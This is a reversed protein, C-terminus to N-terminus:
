GFTVQSFSSNKDDLDKNKNSTKLINSTPPRAMGNAVVKELERVKNKLVPVGELQHELDQILNTKDRLEKKYSEIENERKKLKESLTYANNKM